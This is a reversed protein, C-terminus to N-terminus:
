GRILLKLIVSLSEQAMGENVLVVVMVMLLASKKFRCAITTAECSRKIMLEFASDDMKSVPFLRESLTVISVISHISVFFWNM